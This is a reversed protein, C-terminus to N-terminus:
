KKTEIKTAIEKLKSERKLKIEGKEEKKLEVKEFVISKRGGKGWSFRKPRFIFSLGELFVKYFPIEGIKLLSLSLGFAGGIILLPISLFRPLTQYLLFCVAVTILIIIFQRFTLPGVIPTEREIFQPVNFIPM